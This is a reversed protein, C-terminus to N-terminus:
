NAKCKANRPKYKRPPPAIRATEQVLVELIIKRNYPNLNALMKMIEVVFPDDLLRQRPPDTLGSFVEHLNSCCSEAFRELWGLSPNRSGTESRSVHARSTGMFKAFQTVDLGTTERLARLKRGLAKRDIM